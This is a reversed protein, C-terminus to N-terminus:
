ATVTRLRRKRTSQSGTSKAQGRDGDTGTYVAPLFLVVLVQMNVDTHQGSRFRLAYWATRAPM